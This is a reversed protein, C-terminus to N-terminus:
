THLLTYCGGTVSLRPLELHLEQLSDRLQDKLLECVFVLDQHQELYEAHFLDIIRLSTLTKMFPQIRLYELFNLCINAMSLTMSAVHTAHAPRGIVGPLEADDVDDEEFGFHGLWVNALHLHGIHSFHRLIRLKNRVNESEAVFSNIYLSRLSIQKPPQSTDLTDKPKGWQCNILSITHVKPLLETISSLFASDLTDPPDQTEIFGDFCIDKVYTRVSPRSRLYALFHELADLDRELHIYISDFLHYRAARLWSRCVLTCNALAAKNDHLHDVIMDCLEPPLRPVKAKCLSARHPRNSVPRRTGM